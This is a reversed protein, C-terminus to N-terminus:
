GYILYQNASNATITQSGITLAPPATIALNEVSTGVVLASRDPSLSIRTGSVTIVGGPTLTNGDITHQNLSDATITEAGITLAPPTTITPAALLPSTVVVRSGQANTTTLAIAPLYSTSSAIKGEADTFSVLTPISASVPATSLSTSVIEHGQAYTSTVLIPIAADFSTSLAVSGQANTIRILTPVLIKPLPSANPAIVSLSTSILAKGEANISTVLVPSAAALSTWVAVVGQANTSTAAVQVQTLAPPGQVLPLGENEPQISDPSATPPSQDHPGVNGASEPQGPISPGDLDPFAPSPSSVSPVSATTQKPLSVTHSAVPQPDLIPEPASTPTAEDAETLTSTATLYLAAQLAINPEVVPVLGPFGSFNLPNNSRCFGLAKCSWLSLRPFLPEMM